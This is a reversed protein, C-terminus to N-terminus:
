RHAVTIKRLRVTGDDGASALLRGDPSSTVGNVPGRDDANGRTRPGDQDGRDALPRGDPSFAAGKVDPEGPLAERRRLDLM